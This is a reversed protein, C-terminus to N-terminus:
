VDAKEEPEELESRYEERIAHLAWAPLELKAERAKSFVTKMIEAFTEEAKAKFARADGALQLLDPVSSSLWLRWGLRFWRAVAAAGAEADGRAILEGSDRM